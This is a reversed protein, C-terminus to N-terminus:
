SLKLMVADVIETGMDLLHAFSPALVLDENIPDSSLLGLVYIGNDSKLDISVIVIESGDNRAASAATELDTIRVNNPYVMILIVNKVDPRDGALGNFIDNQVLDIAVALKSGSKREYVLAQIANIQDQTSNYQHLGFKVVPNLDGFFVVALRVDYLKNIVDPLSDIMDQFETSNTTSSVDLMITLDVSKAEEITCTHNGNSLPVCLQSRPCPRSRCPQNAGQNITADWDPVSFLDSTSGTYTKNTFRGLSCELTERSYSLSACRSRLLCANWCAMMGRGSITKFVGNEIKYGQQGISHDVIRDCATTLCIIFIPVFCFERYM